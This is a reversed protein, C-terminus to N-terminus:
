KKAGERVKNTTLVPTAVGLTDLQIWVKKRKTQLKEESEPTLM